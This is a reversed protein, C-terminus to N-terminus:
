ANFAMQAADSRDIARQWDALPSTGADHAHILSLIVALTDRDFVSAEEVRFMGRQDRLATLLRALLRQQTFAPNKEIREAAADLPNEVLPGTMFRTVHRLAEIFRALSQQGAGGAEADSARFLEVM